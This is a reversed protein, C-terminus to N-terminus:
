GEIAPYRVQVVYPHHSYKSMLPSGPTQHRLHEDIPVVVGHPQVDFSGDILHSGDVSSSLM